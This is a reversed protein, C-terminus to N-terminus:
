YKLVNKVAADKDLKQRLETTTSVEYETFKDSVCNEFLEDNEEFLHFYKSTVYDCDNCFRVTWIQGDAKNTQTRTLTGKKIVKSCCLCKHEKRTTVKKETITEM